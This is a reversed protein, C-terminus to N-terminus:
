SRRRSCSVPLSSPHRDTLEASTLRSQVRKVITGSRMIELQTQFDDQGTVTDLTSTSAVSGPAAQIANKLVRLRATATYEPVVNYTYILAGTVFVFVSLILYWIRERFMAIWDALTRTQMIDSFNAGDGYGAGYGGYNGYGYGYGQGSAPQEQQPLMDQRNEKNDAM